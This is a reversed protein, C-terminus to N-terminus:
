KMGTCWGWVLSLESVGSKEIHYLLSDLMQIREKYPTRPYLGASQAPISYFDFLLERSTSIPIDGHMINQFGTERLAAPLEDCDTISRGYPAFDLKSKKAMNFLEGGDRSHGYVGKLYTMGVVGGPMLIEYAARLTKEYDPILFISANYLVADAKFDIFQNMVSADCQIYQISPTADVRQRAAKLMQESFDIGIIKSSLGLHDALSKTSSGTGCGVDLVTMGAKIGCFAALERALKGFLGHHEEFEDYKKVSADFNSCVVKKIVDPDVM